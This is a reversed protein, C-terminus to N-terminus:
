RRNSIRKPSYKVLPKGTYKVLEEGFQKAEEFTDYREILFKGRHNQKLFVIEYQIFHDDAAGYWSEDNESNGNDETFRKTLITTYKYHNLSIEKKTEKGLLNLIKTLKSNAYDIIIYEKTYSLIVGAIFVIVAIGFTFLNFYRYNFYDLTQTIFQYIGFLQAIYGGIRHFKEFAYGKEIKKIM